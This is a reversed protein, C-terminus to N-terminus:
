QSGPARSALVLRIEDAVGDRFTRPSYGLDKAAESYDYTKDERLRALQEPQVVARGLIKKGAAAAAEALGLPVSVMLVRKGLVKSIIGVM